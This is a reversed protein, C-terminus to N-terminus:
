DVIVGREGEAGGGGIEEETEVEVCGGDEGVECFM